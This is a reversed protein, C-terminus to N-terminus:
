PTLGGGVRVRTCAEPRAEIDLTDTEPHYTLRLGMHQYMAAKQAPSAKALGIQAGKSRSRSIRADAGGGLKLGTPYALPLLSDM